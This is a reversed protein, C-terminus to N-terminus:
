RVIAFKGVRVEGGARLVAFYTGSAVPASADDRGQWDVITHGAPRSGSALTTVHRGSADLLDFRVSMPERLDFSFTTRASSPNPVAANLLVGGERPPSEVGTGTYEVKFCGGQNSVVYLDGNCFAVDAAGLLTAWQTMTGNPKIRFILGCNVDTAFMDGGWGTGSAWDFGEPIGPLFTLTTPTGNAAVSCIGLMNAGFHCTAYLGTGWAGGPGFKVYSSYFQGFLTSTGTVDVTYVDVFNLWYGAVIMDTGYAGSPDFANGSPASFTTFPYLQGLPDVRCITNDGVDCVYLYDGFNAAPGPGFALGVPFNLGAAFGAANDNYDIREVRNVDAVYVFDGWVGGPSCEVQKPGVGEGLDTVTFGPELITLQASATEVALTSALFSAIFLSLSPAIITRLVRALPVM